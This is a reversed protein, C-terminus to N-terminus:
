SRASPASYRPAPRDMSLHPWLDRRSAEFNMWLDVDALSPVTVVEGADFGALAADVMNEADMMM